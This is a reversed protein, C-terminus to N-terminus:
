RVIRPPKVTAHKPGFRKGDVTVTVAKADTGEPLFVLFGGNLRPKTTASFAGSRVVVAKRGTAAGWVATRGSFRRTAFFLSDHKVGARAPALGCVPPSVNPEPTVRGGPEHGTPEPRAPQITVCMPQLRPSREGPEVTGYVTGSIRWAPGGDPDVVTYGSGGAFAYRRPEGTAYTITVVPALDEPYSRLALVFAGEPSHPVVRPEGGRVSVMVRKVGEGAVGNIVTRVDERRDAAFVRTGLLVGEGCSDANAEPLARFTGDLGVLGFERDRVQGVTTCVLGTGSRSVRVAWPALGREPDAARPELVRSTGPAVRQEPTVDAAAFPAISSARLALYTGGAATGAVGLALTGTLAFAAFRRRPSRVRKAAARVLDREVDDFFGRSM